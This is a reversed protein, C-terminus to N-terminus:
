PVACVLLMTSRVKQVTYILLVTEQLLSQM